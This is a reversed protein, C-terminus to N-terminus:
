RTKPTVQSFICKAARRPGTPAGAGKARAGATDVSPRSDVSFIMKMPAEVPPVSAVLSTSIFRGCSAGATTMVWCM